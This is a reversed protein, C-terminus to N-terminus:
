HRRKQKKKKKIVAGSWVRVALSIPRKYTFCVRLTRLYDLKCHSKLTISVQLSYSDYFPTSRIVFAFTFAHVANHTYHIAQIMTVFKLQIASLTQKPKKKKM